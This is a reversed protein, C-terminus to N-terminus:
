STEISWGRDAGAGVLLRLMEDLGEPWMAAGNLWTQEPTRYVIWDPKQRTVSADAYFSAARGEYEITLSYPTSISISFTM